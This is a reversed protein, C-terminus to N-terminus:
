IEQTQRGLYVEKRNNGFNDKLEEPFMIINKLEDETFWRVDKIYLEDMGKGYMNELTVKGSEVYARFFLELNLTDNERDAFERIFVPTPQIKVHLGTEEFVERRVCDLISADSDDVGGGPPVWWAFGTVPHVHKVLLIKKDREILAAARIRHKM